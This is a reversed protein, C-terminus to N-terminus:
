VAASIMKGVADLVSSPIEHGGRFPIFEVALGAGTLLDRLAEAQSFPLLPDERGHSQVVKLGRREKAEVTWRPEALLTGSMQVLGRLPLAPFSLAIECALMAGQSFGGLFLAGDKPALTALVEDVALKLHDRAQVLGDPEQQSINRTEGRRMAADLAAMDIPWWCRGEGYPGGLEHLAEPFVFRVERPVDLVRWLPVLDHGPAGFGHLLVVIPGDGGGERDSGGVIWARRGALQVTRM